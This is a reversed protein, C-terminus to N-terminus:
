QWCQYTKVMEIAQILQSSLYPATYFYYCSLDPSLSKIQVAHAVPLTASGDGRALVAIFHCVSSKYGACAAGMVWQRLCVSHVKATSASIHSRKSRNRHQVATREGGPCTM